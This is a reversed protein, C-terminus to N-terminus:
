VLLPAIQLNKKEGNANVKDYGIKRRCKQRTNLMHGSRNKAPADVTNIIHKCVLTM